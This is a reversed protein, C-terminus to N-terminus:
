KKSAKKLKELTDSNEILNQKFNIFADRIKGVTRLNAESLQCGNMWLYIGEGSPDSYRFQFVLNLSMMKGRIVLDNINPYYVMSKEGFEISEGVTKKIADTQSVFIDGFQPTNKSIVFEDGNEEIEYGENLKKKEQRSMLFDVEEIFNMEKSENILPVEPLSTESIKTEKAENIMKLMARTYDKAM